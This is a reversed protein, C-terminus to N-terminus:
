PGEGGGGGGGTTPAGFLRGISGWPIWCKGRSLDHLARSHGHCSSFGEQKRNTALTDYADGASWNPIHV